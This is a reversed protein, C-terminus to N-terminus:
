KGIATGFRYVLDVARKAPNRWMLCYGDDRPATFAGALTTVDKKLVPYLIKNDQHYHINFELPAASRFSYGLHQGAALEMCEEHFENAPLSIAKTSEAPAKAEEAFAPGTVLVWAALMMILPHRM